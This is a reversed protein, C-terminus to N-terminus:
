SQAPPNRHQRHNRRDDFVRCRHIDPPHKRWRNRRGRRERERAGRGSRGRESAGRAARSARGGPDVGADASDVTDARRVSQHHAPRAYGATAASGHSEQGSDGGRSARKGEVVSGLVQGAAEPSGRRPHLLVSRAFRRRHSGGSGRGGKGEVLARRRGQGCFRGRKGDEGERRRRDAAAAGSPSP